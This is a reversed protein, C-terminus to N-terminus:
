GFPSMRGLCTCVCICVLMLCACGFRWGALCGPLWMAGGPAPVQLRGELTGGGCYWVRAAGTRHLLQRAAAAPARLGTGGSQAAAGPGGTHGTSPRWVGPIDGLRRKSHLRKPHAGGGGAAGTPLHSSNLLLTTHPAHTHSHPAPCSPLSFALFPPRLPSSSPPWHGGTVHLSRAEGQVWTGKLGECWGNM